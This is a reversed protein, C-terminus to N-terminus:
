TVRRTATRDPTVWSLILDNVEAPRELHLFHGAREVIKIRSGPGLHEPVGTVLDARICGTEVCTSRRSRRDGTSPPKLWPM